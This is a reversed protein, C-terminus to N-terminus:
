KIALFGEFCVWKMVTTIDVFGARKMLDVNGQTSFPELVGKLSRQKNLIEAEDFGQDLKYEHYLQMAIDQFRADPGRVKEFLVLAGGWELSAYIKDFLAQRRRPHVFQVTYYALVMSCPEFPVALADECVFSARADAGCRESAREIMSREPDIGLYRLGQRDANHALFREALTGTATGLEIVLSDGGLFFDSLKCVLDHGADYLPVSRRVHEDFEKAMNGFSWGANAAQVGGVDRLKSKESM